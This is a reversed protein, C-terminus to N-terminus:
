PMNAYGAVHKGILPANEAACSWLNDRAKGDFARYHASRATGTLTDGAFTITGEFWFDGSELALEIECESIKTVTGRTFGQQYTAFAAEDVFVQDGLPEVLVHMRANAAMSRCNGSRPKGDALKWNTEGVTLKFIGPKICAPAGTAGVDRRGAIPVTQPGDREDGGKERSLEGVIANTRPDLTFVLKTNGAAETFAKVTAKCGEQTLALPGKPFVNMVDSTTLEAKGGEIKFRLWWGDVLGAHFRLRYNGDLECAIGADIAPAASGLGASGSGGAASGPSRSDATKGADCGALILVISLARMAMM